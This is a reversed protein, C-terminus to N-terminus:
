LTLPFLPLSLPWVDSVDSCHIALMQCIGLHPRHPFCFSKIWFIVPNNDSFMDMKAALYTSLHCESILEAHEVSLKRSMKNYGTVRPCM